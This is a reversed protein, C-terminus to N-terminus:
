ARTAGPSPPKGTPGRPAMERVVAQVRLLARLLKTQAELNNMGDRYATPDLIPAIAHLHDIAQIMEAIPEDRLLGALMCLRDMTPRWDENRIPARTAEAM